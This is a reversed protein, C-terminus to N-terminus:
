EEAKKKPRSKPRAVKRRVAKEVKTVEEKVEEEVKVAEKEVKVAEKKLQRGARIVEEEIEKARGEAKVGSGAPSGWSRLSEVNGQIVSRRRADLGVGWRSALHPTLGAGSLEGLSFGRGPRTVVGEGHRAVVVAGPARGKPRETPSKAKSEAKKEVKGKKSKSSM